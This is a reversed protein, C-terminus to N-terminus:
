RPSALLCRGPGALTWGEGAPVLRVAGRALPEGDLTPTGELVVVVVPVAADDSTRGGADLRVRTLRYAEEDVLVGDGRPRVVPGVNHEWADLAALTASAVHLQRPARGYLETWDHFRYTTDSPTQVEAVVVGAGLAHVTGTPLHVVDGVAVEVPRLLDVIGPTGAAAVFADRTTGERLGVFITAGPEAHLVVWSETKLHEGPGVTSPTPHVQVSLHERADLLKVLLPFRGDDTPAVEGLLWNRHTAVLDGLSRGDHPGGVVRSVPDPVPTQEAALDAVDWAEGIRAGDPLVRGLDVLARGGWPKDVLVPDLRLAGGAM